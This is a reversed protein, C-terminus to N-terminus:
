PSRFTESTLVEVVMMQLGGGEAKVREMLDDVAYRDALELHRGTAYALLKEILNRTFQDQRKDALVRKFSDFDSYNEGSPLTGSPDVPAPKNQGKQKPYHNRWRGIPDFSELAFGLPDIKRHCVFCTKDESHLALKERITKAGSVNADISPVVDPPPPPTMGLVNEM